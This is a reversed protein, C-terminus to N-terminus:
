VCKKCHPIKSSQPTQKITKLSYLFTTITVKIDRLFIIFIQHFTQNSINQPLKSPNWPYQLYLLVNIQPDQIFKFYGIEIDVYFLQMKCREYFDLKWYLICIPKEYHEWCFDTAIEYFMFMNMEFFSHIVLSYFPLM